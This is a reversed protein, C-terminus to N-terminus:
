LVVLIIILSKNNKLYAYGYVFRQEAQDRNRIAMAHQTQLQEIQRLLPATADDVSTNIDDMKYDSQQLRSQLDAVEQRLGDERAGAHEEVTQLAIQLERVEKRLRAELSEASEKMKTLEKHLRDNAKIEKELAAASEQEAVLKANAREQEIDELAKKLAAETKTYKKQFAIKESELKNIHKTQQETLDSLLKVSEQLRKETETQKTDKQSAQLLDANAKELKKNLETMTKDADAKESRLKKITTSHRLEVKSLKEGEQLLGQIKDDKSTLQRKLDAVVSELRKVSKQLQAPSQLTQDGTEAQKAEMEAIKSKLSAENSEADEQLQNIQDHLKAINEMAQLLQQERQELITAETKEKNISPTPELIIDDQHIKTDQEPKDEIVTQPEEDDKTEPPETVNSFSSASMEDSKSDTTVPTDQQEAELKVTDDNMNPIVQDVIADNSMARAKESGTESDEKQNNDEVSVTSQHSKETPNLADNSIESVVQEEKSVISNASPQRSSANPRKAKEGMVAALRISLDSSSRSELPKVAPKEDKKKIMKTKPREITTVM